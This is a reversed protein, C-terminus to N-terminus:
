QSSWHRVPTRACLLCQMLIQQTCLSTLLGEFLPHAPHPHTQCDRPLAVGQNQFQVGHHPFGRLGPLGPHNAVRAAGGKPFPGYLPGEWCRGKKAARHGRKRKREQGAPDGRLDGPGLGAGAM